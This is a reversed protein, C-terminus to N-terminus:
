NKKKISSLNYRIHNKHLNSFEAEKHKVNIINDLKM